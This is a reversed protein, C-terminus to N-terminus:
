NKTSEQLYFQSKLRHVFLSDLFFDTTCHHRDPGGGKLSLFLGSENMPRRKSPFFLGDNKVELVCCM